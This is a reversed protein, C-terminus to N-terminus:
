IECPHSMEQEVQKQPDTFTYSSFIELLEDRSMQKPDRGAKRLSRLLKARKRNEDPTVYQLNDASYHLIDGDLHDIEMGEPRPGIWTLAILKHCDISGFQRMFPYKSGGRHGGNLHSKSLSPKIERLKVGEATSCLKEPHRTVRGNYVSYFKGARSCYLLKANKSVGIHQLHEQMPLLWKTLTRSTVGMLNALEAKTMPCTPYSTRTFDVNSQQQDKDLITQATRVANVLEQFQHNSLIVMISKKLHKVIRSVDRVGLISNENSYCFFRARKRVRM